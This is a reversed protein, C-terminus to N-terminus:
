ARNRVEDLIEGDDLAYEMEVASGSCRAASVAKSMARFNIATGVGDAIYTAARNASIGFSDAVSIADINAGLFMFEWKRKEKANGIM